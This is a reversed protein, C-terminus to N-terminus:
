GLQGALNAYTVTKGYPIRLLTEWVRKQFPTGEPQMPPLFDPSKGSFYLSLWHRTQELVPHTGWVADGPIHNHEYKQGSFVVATLFDGDCCLRMQGLSTDMVDYIM